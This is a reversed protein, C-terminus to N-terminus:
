DAGQPHKGNDRDPKKAPHGKAPHEPKTHATPHNQGDNAVTVALGQPQPQVEAKGPM